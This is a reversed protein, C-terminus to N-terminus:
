ALVLTHTLLAPTFVSGRNDNLSLAQSARKVNCLQDLFKTEPVYYNDDYDPLGLSAVTDWLGMFEIKVEDLAADQGTVAKVDARRQDLSKQGKHADFMQRVFDQRESDEILRLDVIGSSHIFGALMRAAYAGRSFGFLYIQDGRKQDYNEALFLYAKCVEKRIGSGFAMGVVDAGNGVGRLYVANLAPNGQLTVLNYLKSINTHSEENNSTGDLFVLLKRPEDNEMKPIHSVANRTNCSGLFLSLVVALIMQVKVSVRRSM